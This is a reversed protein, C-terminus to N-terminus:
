APKAARLLNLTEEVTDEGTIARLVIEDVVGQWQAIAPAIVDPSQAAIATEIPKVGMRAFNAGYAPIAAYRDAEEALRDRAASGLAVRVYAFLTPPQRRAAAAGARVL